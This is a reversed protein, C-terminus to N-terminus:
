REAAREANEVDRALEGADRPGQDIGYRAMLDLVAWRSIGLLEAVRSQGVYGERLLELMLAERAKDIAAQPSGLAAIVDEPLELVLARDVM